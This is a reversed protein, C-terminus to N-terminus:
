VYLGMVRQVRENHVWSHRDLINGEGMVCVCVYRVCAKKCARECADVFSLDADQVQGKGKM